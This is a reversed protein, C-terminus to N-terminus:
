ATRRFVWVGAPDDPPPRPVSPDPKWGNLRMREIAFPVGDKAFTKQTRPTWGAGTVAELVQRGDLCTAHRLENLKQMSAGHRALLLTRSPAVELIWSRFGPRAATERALNRVTEEPLYFLLGETLLLVRRGRTQIEGLLLQLQASDNLDTTLRELFCKPAVDRLLDYKYDLIPAFDVEIWCLQDPLSLRWPRADLGAGLCVVCDVAGDRLEQALFEDIFRTRLAIGFSMWRSSEESNAIAVGREGALMAAYPDHILADERKTEAARAAAVLLATDSIHEL